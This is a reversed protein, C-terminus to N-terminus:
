YRNKGWRKVRSVAEQDSKRAKIAAQFDSIRIRLRGYEAKLFDWPTAKRNHYYSQIQHEIREPGAGQRKLSSIWATRSKLAAQWAPNTLDFVQPRQRLNENLIGIEFLSYGSSRLKQIQRDTLM